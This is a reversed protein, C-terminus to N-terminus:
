PDRGAFPLRGVAGAVPAVAKRKAADSANLSEILDLVSRIEGSGQRTLLDATETATQGVGLRVARNIPEVAFRSALGMLKGQPSGGGTLSGLADMAADDGFALADLLQKTTTSNGRAAANQVAARIQPMLLGRPADYKEKGHFAIFTERSEPTGVVARAVDRFRALEGLDANSGGRRAASQLNAVNGARMAQQGAPTTGRLAVEAAGPTNIALGEDFAGQVVKGVDEDLAYTRGLKAYNPDVQEIAGLVRNRMAELTEVSAVGRNGMGVAAQGGRIERQLNKFAADVTEGSLASAGSLQGSLRRNEIVPQVYREIFMRQAEDNPDLPVEPLARFADYGAKVKASLDAQMDAVQVEPFKPSMGTATAIDGRVGLRPSGAVAEGVRGGQAALRDNVM